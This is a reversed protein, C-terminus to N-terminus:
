DELAGTETELIEGILIRIKGAVAHALQGAAGDPDAVAIEVLMDHIQILPSYAEGRADWGEKFFHVAADKYVFRIIGLVRESHDGLNRQVDTYWDAHGKVLKELYERDIDDRHEYGM